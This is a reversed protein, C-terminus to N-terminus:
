WHGNQYNDLLINVLPFRKSNSHSEPYNYDPTFPSYRLPAFNNNNFKLLSAIRQM